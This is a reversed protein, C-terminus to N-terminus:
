HFISFPLLEVFFLKKLFKITKYSMRPRYAVAHWLTEWDTEFHGLFLREFVCVCVSLYVNEYKYLYLNINFHESCTM